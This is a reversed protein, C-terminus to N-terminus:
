RRGAARRDGRRPGDEDAWRGACPHPRAPPQAGLNAANRRPRNGVALRRAQHVVLAIAADVTHPMYIVVRDGRAVGLSYLAAAFTNVERHLQRFTLERVSGTESSWGVLALQDGREALHRDVANHCLNTTGGVFWKRFPPHDYELITHPPTNWDIATAAEAWFAEPQEISRRYLDEYRM